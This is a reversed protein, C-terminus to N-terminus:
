GFVESYDETLIGALGAADGIYSVWESVRAVSSVKDTHSKKAIGYSHWFLVLSVMDLGASIVPDLSIDSFFLYLGLSTLALAIAEGFASSLIDAVAEGRIYLIVGASAALVGNVIGTALGLSTLANRIGDGYRDFIQFTAEAIAGILATILLSQVVSGLAQVSMGISGGSLINLVFGLGMLTIIVGTIAYFLNSTFIYGIIGNFMGAAGGSEYGKELREVLGERFDEILKNIGSTAMSVAQKILGIAWDVLVNLASVVADGIASLADWITGLVALGIEAVYSGVSELFEGIACIGNWVFGAYDSIAASVSAVLGENIEGLESMKPPVIPILELVGEPLGLTYIDETVDVAKYPRDGTSNMLLYDIIVDLQGSDVKASLIGRVAIPLLRKSEDPSSFEVNKLADPLQDKKDEGAQLISGLKSAYYISEPVIITEVYDEEVDTWGDGETDTDWPDTIYGDTGFDTEAYLSTHDLEEPKLTPSSSSTTFGDITQDTSNTLAADDMPLSFRFLGGGIGTTGADVKVCMGITKNRKRRCRSQSISPRVAYM